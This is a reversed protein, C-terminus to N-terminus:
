CGSLRPLPQAQGRSSFLFSGNQRFFAIFGPPKPGSGGIGLLPPAVDNGLGETDSSSRQRCIVSLLTSDHGTISVSSFSASAPPPKRSIVINTATSRRM